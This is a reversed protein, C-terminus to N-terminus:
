RGARDGAHRGTHPPFWTPLGFHRKKFLATETRDLQNEIALNKAEMLDPNRKLRKYLGSEDLGLAKATPSVLGYNALLAKKIQADTVKM